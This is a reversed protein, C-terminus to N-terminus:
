DYRSARAALARAFRLSGRTRGGRSGTRSLVCRSGIVRGAQSSRAPDRAGRGSVWGMRVMIKQPYAPTYTAARRTARIALMAPRRWPPRRRRIRRSGPSTSRYRTEHRADSASACKMERAWILIENARDLYPTRPQRNQRSVIETSCAASTSLQEAPPRIRRCPASQDSGERVCSAGTIARAPLQM